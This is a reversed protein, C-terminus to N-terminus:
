KNDAQKSLSFTWRKNLLFNIISYVGIGLVQAINPNIKLSEVSVIVSVLNMSYSIIFVVLFPVIEKSYHNKSMFTWRKNWIFSNILGLTYGIINSVIYNLHLINYLILITGLGIITNFVGVISYKFYKRVIDKTMFYSITRTIISQEKEMTRHFENM